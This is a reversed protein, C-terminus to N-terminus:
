AVQVEREDPAQEAIIEVIGRTGDVALTMGSRILRTAGKVNLVAPLRFERAVIAAHSLPGGQEM